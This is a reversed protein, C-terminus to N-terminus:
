KHESTKFMFCYIWKNDLTDEFWYTKKKDHVMKQVKSENDLIKILFLFPFLLEEARVTTATTTVNQLRLMM